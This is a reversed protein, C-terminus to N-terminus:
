DWNWLETIFLLWFVGTALFGVLAFPWRTPKRLGFYVLLGVVLLIPFTVPFVVFAFLLPAYTARGLPNFEGWSSAAFASGRDWQIFSIVIGVLFSLVLIGFGALLM